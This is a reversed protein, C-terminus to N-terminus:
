KIVIKRDKITYKLDGDSIFEFFKLIEKIDTKLELVGTFQHKKIEETKFIVEVNYRRSLIEMIDELSKGKFSFVGKVWAVEHTVDVDSVEVFSTKNSVRSQQNPKLSVTNLGSNVNVKGELLTTSTLDDERYAKINFHTGLVNVEQNKTRVCFADGNHLESSSVEFYAEGYLLEVKRTEGKNFSEPYKLKSDSNLWVKTGDILQVFFDSGKPITLYNNAFQKDKKTTESKPLYFLEKGNGKVNNASYKKNTDLSIEKGNNLTLIIKNESLSTEQKFVNNVTASNKYFYSVCIIGVFVAAYKLLSKMSFYKMESEKENEINAKIKIRSFMKNKLVDEKGLIAIGEKSEQFSEYYNLMKKHEQITVKGELYREILESFQKKNM